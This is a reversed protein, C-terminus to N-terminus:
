AATEAAPAECNKLKLAEGIGPRAGGLAQDLSCEAETQAGSFGFGHGDAKRQEGIESSYPRAPENMSMRKVKHEKFLLRAKDMAAEEEAKRQKQLKELQELAHKQQRHLRQEYLTLNVFSKSDQRFVQSEALATHIRPDEQGGATSEAEDNHPYPRVAHAFGHVGMCLMGEEWTRARNLRWQTDAITQALQREFATKPSFSEVIDKSFRKYEEMDEWPLVVTRGTLGHRTGNYRVVAKGEATKPGTSHQASARNAALQKDSIM